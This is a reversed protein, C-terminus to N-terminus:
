SLTAEKFSSVWCRKLPRGFSLVWPPKPWSCYGAVTLSSDWFYATEKNM